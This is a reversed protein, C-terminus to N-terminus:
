TFFSKFPAHEKLRVGKETTQLSVLEHKPDHELMLLFDNKVAMELFDAKERMTQLPRVDYGMVYALPIHGITPVLDAAYVVTRGKYNFIPLMQKETHGDMLFVDFGLPTQIRDGVASILNLQGSQKIPELNSALFSAKERPNPDTAWNWHNEHVWYQANKFLPYAKGQADQAFAGGCHDFHLHTFLVDTIEDPGFGAAHISSLLDYDGFRDYYSFFKESQKNGMGSDILVLRNQDEILLCRSAMEIRNNSDAPNTKNWISKPVVGFMAGGDLKFHGAEIPHITM